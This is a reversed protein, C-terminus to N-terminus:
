PTAGVPTYWMAFSVNAAALVGCPSLFFSCSRFLYGNEKEFSKVGGGRGHANNEQLVIVVSM